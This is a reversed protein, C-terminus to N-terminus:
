KAGRGTSLTANLRRRVEQVFERQVKKPLSGLPLEIPAGWESGDRVDAHRSTKSQHFHLFARGNVHFNARGKSTLEPWARLVELVPELEDNGRRGDLEYVLMKPARRRWAQELLESVVTRSALTLDITVGSRRKGWWLEAVARKGMAVALPVDDDTIMVNLHASDPVTAFLKGRVRFSPMDHHLAEEAEILCLAIERVEELTVM